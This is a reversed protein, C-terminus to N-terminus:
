SIAATVNIGLRALSARLGRLDEYVFGTLGLSEAGRVNYDRDDIFVAQSPTIGLHDLMIQYIKPDPKAVGADESCLIVDFISDLRRRTTEAYLETTSNSLIATKLGLRRLQRIYQLLGAEARGQGTFESRIDAEAIGSIRALHAFFEDDSMGIDQAKSLDEIQAAHDRQVGPHRELWNMYSDSTLVGYYDFIVAKIM